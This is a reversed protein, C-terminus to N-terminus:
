GSFRILFSEIGARPNIMGRKIQVDLEYLAEFVQSLRDRSFRKAHSILDNVFHSPMRLDKAIEYPTHGSALLEQVRWLRKFHWNLGGLIEPGVENDEAFLEDIIGIVKGTQNRSFANVLAFNDLNTGHESLLGAEVLGIENKDKAYLALKVLGEALLGEDGGCNKILMDIVEPAMSKGEKKLFQRVFQEPQGKIESLRCVAGSEEAWAYLLDDRSMDETELVISTFPPIDSLAKKLSEKASKAIRDADKLILVQRSSLFPYTQAEEIFKAPDFEWGHYVRVSATNKAEPFLEEVKKQRSYASGIILYLQRSEASRNM